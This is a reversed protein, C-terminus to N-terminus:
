QGRLWENVNAAFQEAPLHAWARAPCPTDLGFALAVAEVNEHDTFVQVADPAATREKKPRGAGPFPGRQNPHVPCRQAQYTALALGRIRFPARLGYGARVNQLRGTRCARQVAQISCELLHAAEPVTYMRQPDLM